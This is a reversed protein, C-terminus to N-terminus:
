EKNREKSRRAKEGARGVASTENLRVVARNIILKCKMEKSNQLEKKM